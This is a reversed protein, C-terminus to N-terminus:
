PHVTPRKRFTVHPRVFAADAKQLPQMWGAIGNAPLAPVGFVYADTDNLGYNMNCTVLTLDRNASCHPEYWYDTVAAFLTGLALVHATEINVLVLNSKNDGSGYLGIVAWGPKRFGKCSIHVAYDTDAWTNQYLRFLDTRMGTDLDIAFVWGDGAASYDAMVVADHGDSRTCIDSHEGHNLVTRTLSGDLAYAISPSSGTGNGVAYRGSPSASISDFESTAVMSWLVTKNVVDLAIYGRTPWTGSQEHRCMLVWVRGDASPSGEAKTSCRNADAGIRAQVAATFDYWVSSSNGAVDLKRLVTSGNNGLYLGSNPDTPSWQFEPDGGLGNLSKVFNYPPHANFVNYGGNPQYIIVLSDDANFAQFRSYQERLWAPHLPSVPDNAHDTLRTIITGYFSTMSGGKAPKTGMPFQAPPVPSMWVFPPPGVPTCANAPATTPVWPTATLACGPPPAQTWGHTQTWTGTTNPNTVACDQPRSADPPVPDCQPPPPPELCAGAPPNVPQYPGLRWCEPAPQQGYVATQLWHGKLPPTCSQDRTLPAPQLPCADQVSFRTSVSGGSLPFVVYSGSVGCQGSAARITQDVILLCARPSISPLTRSTTGQTFTVTAKPGPAIAGSGAYVTTCLLVLLLAWFRKM